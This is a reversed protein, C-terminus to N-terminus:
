FDFQMVHILQRTNNQKTLNRLNANKRISSQKVNHQQRHPKHIIEAIDEVTLQGRLLM